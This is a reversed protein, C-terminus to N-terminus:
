HPAYSTKFQIALFPNWMMGSASMAISAGADLMENFHEPLVIGGCGLLALDLKESQKILAADKMFQLADQRIASGCIGSTKRNESLPPAVEMSVSNLGAIGACGAREASIFVQRMQERNLFSGVKILLPIPHVRNRIAQVYEFVADPNMYLSGEAKEVNPCSFNAEIIKAGASKALQATQIFDDLFNKGRNPTGVVSVIMIQGQKLSRNGLEIDKMLFEPPMSPMGFSNTISLSDLGAFEKRMAKTASVRDIYVINPLPHGPHACSRITKYTLVDFGLKAALAVWKANLLPGAPVGLPSNLEFGLFSIKDPWSAAKPIEESFFPGEM